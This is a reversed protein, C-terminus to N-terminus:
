ALRPYALRTYPRRPSLTPLRSLTRPPRSPSAGARRERLCSQARASSNDRAGAVGCRRSAKWKYFSAVCARAGQSGVHRAVLSVSLGFRNLGYAFRVQTANRPFPLAPARTRPLPRPPRAPPRAPPHTPPTLAARFIGADGDRSLDLLFSQAIEAAERRAGEM